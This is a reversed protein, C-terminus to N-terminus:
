IYKVLWTSAPLTLLVTHNPGNWSKEQSLLRLNYKPASKYPYEDFEQQIESEKLNMSAYEDEGREKGCSRCFDWLQKLETSPGHIDELKEVGVKDHGPLKDLIIRKMGSFSLDMGANWLESKLSVVLSEVM